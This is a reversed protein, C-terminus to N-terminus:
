PLGCAPAAACAAMAAVLTTKGAGGQGSAVAIVPARPGGHDAVERERVRRVVDGLDVIDGTQGAVDGICAVADGDPEDLADWTGTSWSPVEDGGYGMPAFPDDPVLGDRESAVTGRTAVETGIDMHAAEADQGRADASGTLSAGTAIVEQAGADFLESVLGADMGDICALVAPAAHGASGDRVASIVHLLDSANGPSAGLAIRVGDGLGRVLEVLADADDVCVIRADPCRLRVEERVRAAAGGGDWILWMVDM